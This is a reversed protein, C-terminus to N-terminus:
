KGRTRTTFRWGSVKILHHHRESHDGFRWGSADGTPSQTAASIDDTRGTGEHEPRRRRSVKRVEIKHRSTKERRSHGRSVGAGDERVNGDPVSGPSGPVCTSCAEGSLSTFEQRVVEDKVRHGSDTPKSMHHQTARASPRTLINRNTPERNQVGAEKPRSRASGGKGEALPQNIM